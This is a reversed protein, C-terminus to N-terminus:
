LEAEEPIEPAVPTMDVPSKKPSDRKKKKKPLPLPFVKPASSQSTVTQTQHQTKDTQRSNFFSPLIEKSAQKKSVYGGFNYEVKGRKPNSQFSTSWNLSNANDKESTKLASLSHSLLTNKTKIQRQM